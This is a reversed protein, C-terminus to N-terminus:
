DSLLWQQTTFYYTTLLFALRNNDDNTRHSRLGVGKLMDLVDCYRERLELPALTLSTLPRISIEAEPDDHEKWEKRETGEEM